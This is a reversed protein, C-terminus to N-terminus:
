CPMTWQGPLVRPQRWPTCSLGSNQRPLVAYGMQRIAWPNYWPFHRHLILYSNHLATPNQGIVLTGFLSDFPDKRRLDYYHELMSILLSKGFRRPRLFLQQKGAAELAPILHTRDQYFYGEQRITGFNFTGYPFQYGTQM